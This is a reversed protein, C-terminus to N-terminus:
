TPHRVKRGRGIFSSRTKAPTAAPTYLDHTLMKASARCSTGLLAIQPANSGAAATTDFALKFNHLEAITM